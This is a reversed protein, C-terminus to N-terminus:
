TEFSVEAMMSCRLHNQRAYTFSIHPGKRFCYLPYRILLLQAIHSIRERTKNTVKFM